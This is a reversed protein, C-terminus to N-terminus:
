SHSLGSFSPFHPPHNYLTCLATKTEMGNMCCKEGDQLKGEKPCILNYSSVTVIYFHKM